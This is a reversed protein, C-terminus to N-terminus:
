CRGSVHSLLRTGQGVQLARNQMRSTHKTSLEDQSGSSGMIMCQSSHFVLTTDLSQEPPWRSSGTHVISYLIQAMSYFLVFIFYLEILTTHLRSSPKFCFSNSICDFLSWCHKQKWFYSLLLGCFCCIQCNCSSNQWLDKEVRSLLHFSHNPLQLRKYNKYLWLTM